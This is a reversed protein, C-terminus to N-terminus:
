VQAEVKLADEAKTIFVEAATIFSTVQEELAKVGEITAKSVESIDVEGARGGNLSDVMAGLTGQIDETMIGLQSIYDVVTEDSLKRTSASKKGKVVTPTLFVISDDYEKYTFAKPFMGQIQEESLGSDIRLTIVNSRSVQILANGKVSLSSLNDPSLNPHSFGTELLADTVEAVSFVDKSIDISKIFKFIAKKNSAFVDEGYSTRVYYDLFKKAVPTLMASVEDFNIDITAGDSTQDIISDSYLLNSM